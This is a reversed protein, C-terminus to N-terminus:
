ADRVPLLPDHMCAIVPHNPAHHLTLQANSMPEFQLVSELQQESFLKGFSEFVIIFNFNQDTVVRKM